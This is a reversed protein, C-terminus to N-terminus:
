ARRKKVGRYRTHQRERNVNSYHPRKNIAADAASGDMRRRRIRLRSSTDAPRGRKTRTYDDEIGLQHRDTKYNTGGLSRAVENRQNRLKRRLSKIGGSGFEIAEDLQANLQILRDNM